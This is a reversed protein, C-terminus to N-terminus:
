KSSIDKNLLEGKLGAFWGAGIHEFECGEKFKECARPMGYGFTGLAVNVYHNHTTCKYTEQIFSM